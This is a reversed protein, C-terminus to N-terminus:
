NMCMLLCYFTEVAAMERCRGRSQNVYRNEFLFCQLFNSCLFMYILPLYKPLYRGWGGPLPSILSASFCPLFLAKKERKEKKRNNRPSFCSFLSSILFLSPFFYSNTALINVRLTSILASLCVSCM